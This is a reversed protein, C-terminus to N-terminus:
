MFFMVYIAKAKGRLTNYAKYMHAEVTKISIGLKVAIEEYKMGERKSMLLVNRCASPLNDIATWLRAERESQEYLDNGEDIIEPINETQITQYMHKKYDISANRVMQFMYNKPALIKEGQEIRETYKVFCDMVIDEAIDIDDVYHTSYICLTRYNTMFLREIKSIESM